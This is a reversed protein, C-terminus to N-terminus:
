LDKPFLADDAAVPIDADVSGKGQLVANLLKRRDIAHKLAQRVSLQDYPAVKSQVAIVNFTANKLVYIQAAPDTEVQRASSVGISDALDVDGALVAQLKAAEEAIAIIEFGDLYPRGDRWYNEYRKVVVAEGPVFRELM